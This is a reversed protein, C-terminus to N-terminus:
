GDADVWVLIGTKDTRMGETASVRLTKNFYRDVVKLQPQIWAGRVSPLLNFHITHRSIPLIQLSSLKPGSFAFEDNAEMTINFTLLHMTPNEITFDLHILSPIASSYRTSALVRPESSPVLLRPVALTSTNLEAGEEKRRWHISLALDLTASRRDELSFKKIDLLFRAEEIESPSIELARAKDLDEHAISCTVGGNVGLVPLDVREIILSEVAFSAMRATLCWKQAIGSATTPGKGDGNEPELVDGIRFYTPWRDPHVRPSFDYNAEFPGVVPLNITLTKSIPTDLDSLLHYLVRLELIYDATVSTTHFSFTEVTKASPVLKGIVHGPLSIVSLEDLRAESDELEKERPPAESQQTWSLTPAMEFDGLIRVELSAETEGDEENVVEVNVVVRENTYIQKKMDLVRIQMKPPKPLIKVVGTRERGLRKKRLVGQNETWWVGTSDNENFALVYDVDFLNAAMSFTTSVVRADGAERLMAAFSFIKAQGPHFTLDTYGVLYTKGPSHQSGATLPSDNSPIADRLTVEVLKLSKGATSASASPTRHRLFVTKLGGDYSLRIESLVVPLSGAQASSTVVLQSALLDGVHSEANKFAYNASVPLHHTYFSIVDGARLVVTPKSKVTELGDLCKALNYQWAPRPAFCNSMLEWEPGIVHGGDGVHSACERTAWGVVAVLDLWGEKRWSMGTWLPRLIKLASGWSGARMEEQALELKLREITRTQGRQEFERITRRISELILGSHDVGVQPSLPYEISPEPCLYTDYINARGSPRPQEPPKRDEDPIAEALVRREYLHRTAINFWYGPHHLLEWPPLREGVPFAKEPPSYISPALTVEAGKPINTINFIPLESKQILEAMITAWRSEWAEWGYNVSGKGRRDVLDRMRDRHARWRRSASTTQGNWLLCRLIRIAIADALLRAENWRPSWSAISEFVDQGLLGEYAGEFNRGAADMEQRFEALVGLKFEYRVNWGHIALTQSTGSTPPATPLPIAGRNRKRRSHKSLDRYYEICLPQLTSFLSQVFARLEVPSLNPPLFFLSNKPDLGTAKRVNALREDIDPAELISKESLIVAVFRTKYSSAAFIKKIDNIETKLQNDHLTSLNADATLTFFSIFVSPLLHQHKTVWLPSMVGDPFLASSPSLPSLPSHLERPTSAASPTSAPSFGPPPSAKRPPFIIDRGVVKVRFRISGVADKFTRSSWPSHSADVELFCRLLPDASPSTVLPLESSIRVGNEQLLPYEYSALEQDQSSSALGSLVVLPLNHVLYDAPYVDM